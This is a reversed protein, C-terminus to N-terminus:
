RDQRPFLYITSPTKHARVEGTMELFSILSGIDDAAFVGSFKKAALQSDNVVVRVRNYRNFEEAMDALSDSVFVLRRKKWSTVAEVDTDTVRISKEEVVVDAREGATILVRGDALHQVPAAAQDTRADITPFVTKESRDVAVKGELVSVSTFEPELHVNFKTGVAEAITDGAIVRFPRNPNHAVEFMAEGKKLEITRTNEDFRVDIESQTNLHLISGDDLPFSRQEGLRTEFSVGGPTANPLFPLIALLAAVAFAAALGVGAGALWDRRMFGFVGAVRQLPPSGAVAEPSREQPLPIIEVAESFAPIKKEIDVADLRTFLSVAVLLEEVHRPSELLWDAFDRKEAPNLEDRDHAVAWDAAEEAIQLNRIKQGKINTTEVMTHSM